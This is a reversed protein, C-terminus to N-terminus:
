VVVLGYRYALRQNEFLWEPFITSVLSYFRANLEFHALYAM